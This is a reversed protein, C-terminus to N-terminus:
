ADNNYLCESLLHEKLSISPHYSYISLGSIINIGVRQVETRTETRIYINGYTFVRSMKTATGAIIQYVYTNPM